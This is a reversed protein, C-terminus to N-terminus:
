ERGGPRSSRTTPPGVVRSLSGLACAGPEGVVTM